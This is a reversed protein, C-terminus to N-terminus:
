RKRYGPLKHNDKKQGAARYRYGRSKVNQPTRKRRVRLPSKAYVGLTTSLATKSADRNETHSGTRNRPLAIERSHSRRNREQHIAKRMCTNAFQKPVQPFILFSQRNLRKSDAKEFFCADPTARCKTSGSSYQTAKGRHQFVFTKKSFACISYLNVTDFILSPPFQPTDEM